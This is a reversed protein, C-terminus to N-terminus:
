KLAATATTIRAVRRGCVEFVRGDFRCLKAIRECTKALGKRFYVYQHDEDDAKRLMDGVAAIYIVQKNKTTQIKYMKLDGFDGCSCDEEAVHFNRGKKTGRVRKKRAGCEGRQARSTTGAATTPADPTTLRIGKYPGPKRSKTCISRREFM